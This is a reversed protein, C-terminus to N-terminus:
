DLIADAEVEVLLQPIALASIGIVSNASPEVRGFFAGVSEAIVPLKEPSLGVVFTRLRVVNGASGGVSTLIDKVNQLAQNLQAGFDDVGILEGNVDLAVQGSVHLLKSGKSLVAQSTASKTIDLVTDPNIAQRKM